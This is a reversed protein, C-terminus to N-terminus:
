IEFEVYPRPFSRWLRQLVTPDQPNSARIKKRFAAAKEANVTPSADAIFRDGFLPDEPEQFTVGLTKLREDAGEYPSGRDFRVPFAHFCPALGNAAKGLRKPIGALEHVFELTEALDADTDGPVPNLLGMVPLIDARLCAEVLTRAGEKYRRHRSERRDIKDLECLSNQSAAELGFYIFNCGAEKMRPVDDPQLIDVRSEALFALGAQGIIDCVEATRQQKAGFLPDCIWLYWDHGLARFAEVDGRVKALSDHVFGPNTIRETCFACHFPCGRSTLWCFIDYREPQALLSLDIPAPAPLKATQPNRIIDDGRRWVLGPVAEPKSLGHRSLYVAAEEGPGTVVADIEPCRALIDRACATAWIGGMTVPTRVGRQKLRRALAVAFRGEVPSLAATGLMRPAARVVADAVRDLLTAPDDEADTDLDVSPDLVQVECGERKLHTGLTINSLSPCLGGPLTKGALPTSTLLLEPGGM